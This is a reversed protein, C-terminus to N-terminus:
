HEVTKSTAIKVDCEPCENICGVLRGIDDFVFVTGNELRLADHGGPETVCRYIKFGESAFIRELVDRTNM